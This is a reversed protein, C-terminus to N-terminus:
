DSIKHIKKYLFHRNFQNSDIIKPITCPNVSNKGTLLEPCKTNNWVSKPRVSGANNNSTQRCTPVRNATAATKLLSNPAKNLTTNRDGAM